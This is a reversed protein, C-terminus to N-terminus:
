RPSRPAGDTTLAQEPVSAWPGAVVKRRSAPTKPTGIRLGERTRRLTGRVQLVGKDLHVDEWRLALLEGRRM